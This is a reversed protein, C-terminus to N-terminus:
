GWMGYYKWMNRKEKEEQEWQNLQQQPTVNDYNTVTTKFEIKPTKFKAIPKLGGFVDYITNPKIKKIKGSLKLYSRAYVVNQKDTSMILYDENQFSYMETSEEKFYLLKKTAKDYVFISYSGYTERNLSKISAILDSTYAETLAEAYIKTDSKNIQIGNHIIGNHMLILKDTEHPHANEITNGGSTGIRQHTLLFDRETRFILKNLSKVILPENNEFFLTGESHSNTAYSYSSLVNMLDVVIRDKGNKKWILNLNCM